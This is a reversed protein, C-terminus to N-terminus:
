SASAARVRDAFATAAVADEDLGMEAFQRAADEALAAAAAPRGQQERLEAATFTVDAVTISLGVTTAAELARECYTDAEDLQGARLLKEALNSYANAQGSPHGLREFEVIARRDCEIAVLLDGRKFEAMGLNLFGGALEEVTGTREAMQLASRFADAADDYREMKHYADGLARLAGTLGRLDQSREFSHRASFAYQLADKARGELNCARSLRVLLHGIIPDDSDAVLIGSEIAEIAEATRGQLLLTWGREHWLCAVEPASRGHAAFGQELVELASEFDGRKRLIDARGLWSRVDSRQGLAEQYLGLATDFDGTVNRLDAVDLLVTSLQETDTSETRALEAARELHLMAEENAYLRRARDGARMLYGTAIAGREGLYSHRALLDIVDDGAGYLAEAVEAVQRHLDRRHRRLLRGYAVEQVLAHHFVLAPDDGDQSPDLFGARVLGDLADGLDATSPDLARLIPLRVLRGVVSATQLVSSLESPLLDIRAALVREVTDPVNDSTWGPRMRWRGNVTSLAGEDILHHVLEGVFLPNGGTRDEVVRVLDGPPEGELLATLYVVIADHDLPGLDFHATWQSDVRGRVAELTPVGEPRSTLVLAVPWGQTVRALEMSLSVSATDIWHVDEITVVVPQDDALTILWDVVAAHLRRRLAEPDLRSLEDNPEGVGLLRALLPAVDPGVSAAAELRRRAETAGHEVRVGAVARILEAFPWYPLTNGYSPCRVQLWRVGRERARTEAEALLRSKGVGPEGAVTVVGAGHGRKLGILMGDIASLEHRRGIVPGLRSSQVAVALRRGILRWGTVAKAKGKVKLEGVSEFTFADRTLEYTSQGVYIEGNPAVSELRQALIVSDGLISYDNRIDGGFQGSIVRGTNVGIHLELGHAEPPLERLLSPLSSQMELAVLLARAADDEHAIPAGFFVLLADGAYKAIFGEYREAIAAMGSIVPAIVEHLEEPDDIQESLTTFGSIDAFLATVLRREEPRDAEAAEVTAREVGCWGCFRTAEPNEGDCDLCQWGGGV